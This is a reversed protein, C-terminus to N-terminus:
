LGVRDGVLFDAAARRDEKDVSQGVIPPHPVREYGPQGTVKSTDGDIKGTVTLRIVRSAVIQEGDHAANVFREAPKLASRRDDDTMRHSGDM